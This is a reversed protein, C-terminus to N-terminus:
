ILREKELKQIALETNKKFNLFLEEINDYKKDVMIKRKLSELQETAPQLNLHRFSPLMKHATEGLKRIKKQRLDNEMSELGEKANDVFTEIMTNFFHQDGKTIRKLEALNAIETDDAPITSRRDVSEDLAILDRKLNRAIKNYLSIEKYPKILYDNIGAKYYEELNEGAIDATVAIIATIKNNLRRRIYKAVDIGSIDPMHIDLLIVEYDNQQAKQMAEKGDIAIDAESGFENLITQALLRNVSDDDVILINVGKLKGAALSETVDIEEPVVDSIILPMVVSFVSGKGVESTVEITGHLLRTLEKCITLGLGTGAYKRIIASEAQKFKDFIVPLKEKSIGIGTDEVEFRVIAKDGEISEVGATLKVYGETTFKIANSVLNILIQKLRFPDGQFVDPSHSKIQYKFGIGKSRTRLYLTDYVDLILGSLKFPISDLEISGSEIKSITLIENVLSLLHESSKNIINVFRVQKEQLDTKMLQESFGSIANLPTRIEHSINAIFDSKVHNAEQAANKAQTLKDAMKKEDTVNQIISMATQVEGSVSKVPVVSIDYYSKYLSFGSSIEHGKLASNFLPDLIKKLNRYKIKNLSLGEFDEKKHGMKKMEPGEALIFRKNKDFLYLVVDPINSALIRYFHLSKKLNDYESEEKSLQQATFIVQDISKELQEAECKLIILNGEKKNFGITAKAKKGSLATQFLHILAKTNDGYVLEKINKKYLEKKNYGLEDKFSKNVYVFFGEHDLEAILIGAKETLKKYKKQNRKSKLFFDEEVILRNLFLLIDTVENKGNVVPLFQIRLPMTDDLSSIFYSFEPKEISKKQKLAQHFHKKTKKQHNKIVLKKFIDKNLLEDEHFHFLETVKTNINLIFGKTDLQIIALGIKEWAEFFEQLKKSDIASSIHDIMFIYEIVQFHKVFIIFIIYTIDCLRMIDVHSDGNNLPHRKFLRLCFLLSVSVFFQM